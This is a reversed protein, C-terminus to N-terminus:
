RVRRVKGSNSKFEKGLKVYSHIIMLRINKELITWMRKMTPEIEENKIRESYRLLEHHHKEDDNEAHSSRLLTGRLDKGTRKFIRLELKIGDEYNNKITM